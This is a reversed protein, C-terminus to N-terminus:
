KGNVPIPEIDLELTQHSFEIPAEGICLVLRKITTPKTKLLYTADLLVFNSKALTLANKLVQNVEEQREVRIDHGNWADPTASYKPTPTIEAGSLYPTSLATGAPFCRYFNWIPFVYGNPHM